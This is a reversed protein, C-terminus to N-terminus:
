NESGFLGNIMSRQIENVTDPQQIILNENEIQADLGAMSLYQAIPFRQVGIIYKKFFETQDIGSLTTLSAQLEDLTYNGNTGGYKQFLGRMLDDLSKTNNTAKRIIMDQAIGVFMGGGYIIGWHDHKEAGNTMSLKELGDDTRYRQYFLDNLVSLYANDDLLGIHHMSKLTYYNTFGEKFWETSDTAPHFSKGNWLHFFEHAFIFRSIMKSMPDDKRDILISIHNGIGEGDTHDSSNIVVVSKNFVRDGSLKPIGGMLEIYYDFVGEALQKFAAKEAIIRDGGLAFVLEFDSRRVTIEEHVGAFLISEILDTTGNAMFSFQDVGQQEWPTTVHWGEPLDFDIQINEVDNETRIFLSRGTYFVGLDNAYAAGDVGGGGIMTKM